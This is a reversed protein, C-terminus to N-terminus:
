LVGSIMSEIVDFHYEFMQSRMNAIQSLPIWEAKEADDSGKVEPLGGIEALKFLYAYTITRGRLSRQPLDFIDKKAVSGKLVPGPVKLRTEERLERIAADLLRENQNVFGGPLAYLGKGPESRRRILLIHGSQIVVSDVTVFIPPYPAVKWASRYDKIFEYEKCLQAFEPKEEFENMFEITPIPVFSRLLMDVDDSSIQAGAFERGFYIERVKTSSLFQSVKHDEEVLDLSYGPFMNLYFSSEDRNAGTITVSPLSVLDKMVHITRPKGQHEVMREKLMSEQVANVKTQVQQLWRQDNYPIDVLHDFVLKSKDINALSPSTNVYEQIIRQRESATFPIKITRSQDASGILVLVRKSNLLARKLVESHGRHFPSFRGIYVTLDHM